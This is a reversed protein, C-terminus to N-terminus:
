RQVRLGLQVGEADHERMHAELMRMAGDGLPVGLDYRGTCLRCRFEMRRETFSGRVERWTFAEAIARKRSPTPM